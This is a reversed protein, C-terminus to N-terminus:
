RQENNQPLSMRDMHLFHGNEIKVWNRIAGQCKSHPSTVFIKGGDHSVRALSLMMRPALKKMWNDTFFDVVVTKRLGTM